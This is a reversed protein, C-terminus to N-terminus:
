PLFDVKEFGKGMLIKRLSSRYNALWNNSVLDDQMSLPEAVLLSVESKLDRNALWSRAQRILENLFDGTLEGASRRKGDFTAFQQNSAVGPKFNGLDVKFDENLQGRRTAAALADCGIMPNNQGPQYRIVTPVNTSDNFDVLEASHIFFDKEAMDGIVIQGVLNTCKYTESAPSFLCRVLM